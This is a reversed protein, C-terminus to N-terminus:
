FISHHEDVFDVGITLGKRWAIRANHAIAGILVQVETPLTMDEPLELRVGTVSHDLLACFIPERGDRLDLRMSYRREIAARPAGRRDTAGAAAVDAASSDQPMAHNHCDFM